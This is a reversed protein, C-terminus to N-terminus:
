DSIAEFDYNQRIDPNAGHKLLLKVIEMHCIQLAHLLPTEGDINRTNINVGHDLLLEIVNTKGSAIAAHFITNNNPVEMNVDAGKELLHKVENYSGHRCAAYLISKKNVILNLDVIDDIVRKFIDIPLNQILRNPYHYYLKKLYLCIADVYDTMNNKKCYNLEESVDIRRDKTDGAELIMSFMTKDGKLCINMLPSHTKNHVYRSVWINHKLFIRLADIDKDAIVDNILYINGSHSPCKNTTHKFLCNIIKANDPTKNAKYLYYAATVISDKYHSSHSLNSNAGLKTLTKVTNYCSYQVALSLPKAGDDNNTNIDISLKSLVNILKIYHEENSAKDLFLLHKMDNPLVEGSYRLMAYVHHYKADLDKTYKFFQDITLNKFYEVNKDFCDNLKPIAKRLSKYLMRFHNTKTETDITSNVQVTFWENYRNNIGKRAIANCCKNLQAFVTLEKYTMHSMYLITDEEISIHFPHTNPHILSIISNYLKNAIVQLEAHKIIEIRDTTHLYQLEIQHKIKLAENCLKLYEERPVNSLIQKHIVELKSLGENAITAINM